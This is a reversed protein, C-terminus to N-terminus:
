NGQLHQWGISTVVGLQATPKGGFGARRRGQAVGTNGGHIVKDLLTLPAEDDILVNFAACSTFLQSPGAERRVFDEIRTGLEGVRQDRRVAAPNDM